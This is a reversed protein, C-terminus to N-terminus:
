FVPVRALLILHTYSVPYSCYKPTIELRICFSDNNPFTGLFFDRFSKTVWAMGEGDAPASIKIVFMLSGPEGNFLRDMNEATIEEGNENVITDLVSEKM